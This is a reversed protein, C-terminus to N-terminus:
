KGSLVGSLIYIYNVKRQRNLSRLKSKLPLKKGTKETEVNPFPPRSMEYLEFTFNIIAKTESDNEFIVEPIM